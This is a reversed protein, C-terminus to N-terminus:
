MIFVFLARRRPWRFIPASSSFMLTARRVVPSTGRSLHCTAVIPHSAIIQKISNNELFTKAYMQNQYRAFM